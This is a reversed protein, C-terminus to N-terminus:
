LLIKKKWVFIFKGRVILKLMYLMRGLFKWLRRAVPIDKLDFRMGDSLEQKQTNPLYLRTTESFAHIYPVFIFNKVGRSLGVGFGALNPDYFWRRIQRFGHFHFFILPQEDVMIRSENLRIKYNALNWPALNAGKHKLVVVHQFRMPWDDLYKQDAYRGAELRDYCWENCASRWWQLSRVGNQDNRFSIWGVNYRGYKYKHLLYEPFRHDIIAISHDGTEQFVPLPSSFFFLDADLYTIRDIDPSQNLVFISLSPTCTFFYEIRSRNRKADLLEPDNKEFQELSIAKAHPLELQKLVSYSYRDMCLVWLQFPKCYMEMSKYLTLGRLLYHQDFYTCYYDM